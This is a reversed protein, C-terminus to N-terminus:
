TNMRMIDSGIIMEASRLMGVTHGCHESKLSMPIFIGGGKIKVVCWEGHMQEFPRYECPIGRYHGAGKANRGQHDALLSRKKFAIGIWDVFIISEIDISNSINAIKEDVNTLFKELLVDFLREGANMIIKTVSEAVSNIADRLNDLDAKDVRDLKRLAEM